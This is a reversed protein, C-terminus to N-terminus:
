DKTLFLSKFDKEVYKEFKKKDAIIDRLVVKKQSYIENFDWKLLLNEDELNKPYLRLEMRKKSKYIKVQGYDSKLYHKIFVSKSNAYDVKLENIKEPFLEAIALNISNGGRVFIFYYVKELKLEDIAKSVKRNLLNKWKELIDEYKEKSFLQDLDNGETAFNQALSTENSIGKKFHNSDTVKASIFKIDFGLKNKKDHVDIPYNGAGVTDVNFAQAVWQELFEKTMQIYTEKQSGLLEPQSFLVKRLLYNITKIAAEDFFSEIEQKSLFRLVYPFEEQEIGGDKKLKM